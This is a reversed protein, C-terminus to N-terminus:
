GEVVRECEDGWEDPPGAPTPVPVAGIAQLWRGEQQMSEYTQRWWQHALGREDDNALGVWLWVYGWALLQMATLPQVRKGTEGLYVGAKALLERAQDRNWERGRYIRIEESLDHAMSRVAAAKASSRDIPLPKRPTM